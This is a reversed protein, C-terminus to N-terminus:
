ASSSSWNFRRCVAPCSPSWRSISPSRLCPSFSNSAAHIWHDSLGGLYGSIMGFWRASWWWWASWWCPSAMTLQSGILLRSLVDRGDRDTGIINWPCSAAGGATAISSCALCGIPGATDSSEPQCRTATDVKTVVAFTSPDVETTMPHTFPVLHFGDDAFFHLGQPAIYIADPNRATPDYALLFRCLDHRDAAPV